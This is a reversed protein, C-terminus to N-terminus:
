EIYTPRRAPGRRSSCKASEAHPTTIVTDPRTLGNKCVPVDGELSGKSRSPIEPLFGSEDRQILLDTSEM